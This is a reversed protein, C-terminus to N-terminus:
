KDNNDNLIVEEKLRGSLKYLISVNVITILIHSALHFKVNNKNKALGYMLGMLIVLIRFFLAPSMYITVGSGIVMIIRDSWKWFESTLGHNLISTSLATIIFSGYTIPPPYSIM